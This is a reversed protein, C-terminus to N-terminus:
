KPRDQDLIEGCGTFDLTTEIRFNSGSIRREAHFMDLPYVGGVQIGLDGASDDLSVGGLQPGHVGGLDVALRGNIFVWVDDDGRFSFYEGGKYEFQTHLETTFHFNHPMEDHSNFTETGVGDLPFFLGTDLVFTGNVPELWIDVVYQENIGPLNQYWDQFEYIETNTETNLVPKRDTSLTPLVFDPGDAREDGFDAHDTTFDRSIGRLINACEEQEFTVEALPGVLMYGGRAPMPDSEAPSVMSATFGDPLTRVLMVDPGGGGM